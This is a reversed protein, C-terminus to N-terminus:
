AEEKGSPFLSPQKRDKLRAREEDGALLEVSYASGPAPRVVGSAVNEEHTGQAPSSQIVLGSLGLLLLARFLGTACWGSRGPERLM